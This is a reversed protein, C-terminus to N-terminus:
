TGPRLRGLFQSFSTPQRGLLSTLVRPNGAMGFREYYRFMALLTEVQFDGMGTARARDAWTSRDITEVAIERGLVGGIVRAVEAQTLLESAALEYIAGRHGNEILVRAAVEAVDDLDVMAFRTSADYPIEYVGDDVIAPWQGLVNQMYPAPQIITFELASEFLREEVRLKNWHHPMARTQPHLVSHFVFHEIGADAAVEVLRDGIEVEQPHVNPCIHYISQAGRIADFLANRDRLDGECIRDVGLASVAARQASNRVFARVRSRDELGACLRGLVAQGTKGAAGTVLIPDLALM